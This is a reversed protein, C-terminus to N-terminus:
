DFSMLLSVGLPIIWLLKETLVVMTPLILAALSM